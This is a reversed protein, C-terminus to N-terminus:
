ATEKANWYKMFGSSFDNRRCFSSVAEEIWDDKKDPDDEPVNEGTLGTAFRIWQLKWGNMARPDGGEIRLIYRLVERVVAPYVLECFVPDLAVSRWDGVCSNILLLPAGSMDVRFLQKDLGDDSNVELLNIRDRRPGVNPEPDQSHPRINDAEALILGKRGNSATVRVRFLVGDPSNFEDLRRDTPLSVNGVTGCPFRKWSTRRYAEIAILAEAPLTYGAFSLEADFELMGSDTTKVSVRMDKHKLRKQGTYNFRRVAM